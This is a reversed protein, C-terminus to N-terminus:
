LNAIATLVAQVEPGSLGTARPLFQGGAHALFRSPVQQAFRGYVIRTTAYSLICAARARTMSVYFLRAAELVLGPFAQRFNGPLISEELGPIFVVTANLGKAGHMTMIRVRPPLLGTQPLPLGLRQYAAELVRAQQEDTDAWLYDRTEELTLGQPLHAIANNWANTALQGFVANLLLGVDTARQALTDTSQWQAIQTCLARASNLARLSRGGFVGGPLPVHFIDRYNLNAVVVQNAIQGCTGRGVGPRVGLLVRHAIYDDPNCVIRLLALAMRGAPDDLFGAIRPSECQVNLAQLQSILLPALQRTDSLLILIERPAMGGNILDRCSQAIAQAEAIGSQFQWRCVIGHEPPNANAYLSALAKPIRNPLPFNTILNDAAVVIDSTCRFCDSLTHSSATAHRTTFSQIGNPSAFRFSYISQDDDGAVFTPVGRAIIADVFEIDCPNLDQYEDVILHGIGLLSAPDLMGGSIQVICQRVVEGPLVCSYTQSRPGHFASFQAREGTTVPPNPPVYNPPLWQGTSWFAEHERRIVECRSPTAGSQHSFEVDFINKLEWNDLVLPNVPYATLM